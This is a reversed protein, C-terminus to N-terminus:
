KIQLHGHGLHGTQNNSYHVNPFQRPRMPRRQLMNGHPVPNHSPCTFIFIHSFNNILNEPFFKILNEPFNKLKGYFQLKLLDSSSSIKNILFIIKLFCNVFGIAPVWNTWNFNASISVSILKPRCAHKRTARSFSSPFHTVLISHVNKYIIKNFYKALVFKV